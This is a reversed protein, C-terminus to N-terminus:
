FPLLPDVGGGDKKKTDETERRSVSGVSACEAETRLAQAAVEIARGAEQLANAAIMLEREFVSDRM